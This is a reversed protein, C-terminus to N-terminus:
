DVLRGDDLRFVRDASVKAREDHTVMLVARGDGAFEALYHLVTGSNENDLNGTPEDALILEPEHILARALAVRQREGTSLASPVHDKRHELNFRRILALARARADERAMAVTPALVNGLVSLYPILHFQQFVFGIKEARFRSRKESSLGYPDEGGILVTGETPRLLGGVALLLTTKGCGSPGVVAAFEGHDVQLSVGKLAHVAEAPGQFVKTLDQVKLVM